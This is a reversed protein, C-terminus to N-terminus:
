SILAKVESCRQDCKARMLHLIWELPWSFHLIWELPWSFHRSRGFTTRVHHVQYKKAEFHAERRLLTCKKLMEVELLQGFATNKVYKAKSSHKVGRHCASKSCRLEWFHDPASTSQSNSKSIHKAGGRRAGKSCRMKWFHESCPIRQVTQSRFASRAVTAHM